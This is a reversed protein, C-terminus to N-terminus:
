GESTKEEEAWGAPLENGNLFHNIIVYAQRVPEFSLPLSFFGHLADPIRHREVSCGADALARAYAEGEDRLPDLEATIVLTRPQGVLNEELLPAFYPNALDEPSSMYLDMYDCIRKSTLLYDTGNERISDFPSTAPDHDAATAPYILIQTKPMFEGRERAMLSVAAALNGGASDGVLTIDEPSINFLSKPNKYIERAVAYCDEPAAPFKNEPALRYDVSVVTRKTLRSLNACVRDYSDINGTVWGGGHFFLLMPHDLGDLHSFIRVPIDHGDVSVKHNWTRYDVSIGKPHAVNIIQRVSVYKKKIDVESFSLARLAALLAKNIAM